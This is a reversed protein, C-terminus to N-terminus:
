VNAGGSSLGTGWLRGVVAMQGSGGRCYGSKCKAVHRWSSPQLDVLLAIVRAIVETDTPLRM